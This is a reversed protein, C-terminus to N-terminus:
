IDVGWLAGQGTVFQGTHIRDIDQEPLRVMAVCRGDALIGHDKFDFDLNAYSEGAFVHLFFRPAADREDCPERVYVIDADRLHIDFAGRATPAETRVAAWVRQYREVDLPVTVQWINRYEDEGIQEFQGTRASTVSYPPLPVHALCEGDIMRGYTAFLFDNLVFYPDPSALGRVDEAPMWHLFFRPEIDETQCDTKMYFLADDLVYINWEARVRPENKRAKQTAKDLKNMMRLDLELYKRRIDTLVEIDVPSQADFKEVALPLQGGDNRFASYYIRLRDALVAETERPLKMGSEIFRYLCQAALMNGAENWHPDNRFKISQYQFNPIREEACALLDVTQARVNQEIVRRAKLFDNQWRGRAEADMPLLVVYFAGGASEVAVKWRRLVTAFISFAEEQGANLFDFSMSLRECIDLALYAVHFKFLPRLLFHVRNEKENTLKGHVDFVDTNSIDRIDNFCFLYFVYDLHDVHDAETFDLYNLYSQETGYGDVGFNLVNFRDRGAANLLYDLPETFSYQVPLLTNALFSDGFFGVHVEGEAKQRTSALIDRHRRLRKALNNYRVSHYKGTDPHRMSRQSSSMRHVPAVLQEYKPFAFRLLLECAVVAGFVSALILGTNALIRKFTRM